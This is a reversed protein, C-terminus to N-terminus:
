ILVRPDEWEIRYAQSQGGGPNNFTKLGQNIGGIRMYFRIGKVNKELVWLYLPSDPREQIVWEATKAMLVKGLGHGYLEPQVHLNDLYAGWTKHYDLFTCVFGKLQGEEEALIVGQKPNPSAYRQTWVDLRDQEVKYDLYHDSFSGRYNLKWSLTHLSALNPVDKVTAPRYSLQNLDLSCTPM